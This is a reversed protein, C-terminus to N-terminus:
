INMEMSALANDDVSTEDISTNDSIPIEVSVLKVDQVWKNEINMYAATMSTAPPVKRIWADRVVINPEALVFPVLSLIFVIMLSANSM